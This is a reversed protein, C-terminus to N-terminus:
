SSLSAKRERLDALIHQGIVRRDEEVGLILVILQTLDGAFVTEGLEGFKKLYGHLSGGKKLMQDRKDRVAEYDLPRASGSHCKICDVDWVSNIGGCQICEWQDICAMTTKTRELNQGNTLNVYRKTM